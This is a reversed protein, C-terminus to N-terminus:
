REHEPCLVLLPDEELRKADLHAGCVQCSGYSGDDLRRLAEDVAGLDANVQDLLAADSLVEGADSSADYAADSV